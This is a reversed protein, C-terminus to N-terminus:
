TNARPSTRYCAFGILCVASIFVTFAVSTSLLGIHRALVGVAIVPVSAGAYLSLYYLSITGARDHADVTHMTAAQVSRGITMGQGIGCVLAAVVFLVINDTAISASFIVLGLVIAGVGTTIGVALPIRRLMLQALASGAFVVGIAAGSLALSTSRDISHLLTPTLGALLGLVGMGSVGIFCLGIFGRRFHKEGPPSPAIFGVTPATTAARPLLLTAAGVLTATVALHIAFVYEIPHALYSAAIGGLVPGIGMGAINAVTARLAYRSRLQPEVLEVIMATGASMIIGAASGTLVRAALLSPISQAALFVADAGVAGALAAVIVAREGARATLSPGAILTVAVGLAYMAYIITIDVTDVPFRRGYEGYLPTPMNSQAMVVVIAGLLLAVQRPRVPSSPCSTVCTGAFLCTRAVFNDM